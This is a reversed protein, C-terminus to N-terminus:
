TLCVCACPPLQHRGVAHQLCPNPETACRWGEEKGVVQQSVLWCGAPVGVLVFVCSLQLAHQSYSAWALLILSYDAQYCNNLVCAACAHLACVRM